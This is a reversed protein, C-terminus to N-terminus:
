VCTNLFHLTIKASFLQGTTYDDNDSATNADDDDDDDDPQWTAFLKSLWPGGLHKTRLLM